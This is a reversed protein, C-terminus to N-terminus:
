DDFKSQKQRYSEQAVGFDKGGEKAAAPKAKPRFVRKLAPPADDTPEAMGRKLWRRAKDDRLDHVEGARYTERVAGAGDRIEADELFRVKM